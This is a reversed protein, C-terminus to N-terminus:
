NKVAEVQYIMVMKEKGKVKIPELPQIIFDDKVRNYTEESILIQEPKANSELRAALNVTDGIATYELREKSGINGVVAPGSNIGIGFRVSRGYKSELRDNLEKAKSKMELAALVARKAHDEQPVPAGFISMVGDGIFKDLTGGYKFISQTALDLYENLVVIVEEPEMKESLPTFGRIDIFVLTVDKREGGLKIEGETSLIEEVVSQSVYRGFLGTVRNRERREQLYHSVVSFVYSFVIALLVYFYPIIIHLKEIVENFLYTYIVIFGVSVLISWKINVREMTLYSLITVISIVVIGAATPVESYIRGDILSQLVNAHIEVGFMTTHSNPVDFMDQLGVTYPGILVTADKFYSLEIEGNIVDGVSIIEFTPQTPTSYYTFYAESFGGTKIPEDGLFWENDSTWRIQRDEPLILNALRVAMAPIIEGDENPIGLAVERIKQDSSILPNIHGLQELSIDYIPYHIAEYALHNPDEQYSALTFYTALFINDHADIVEQWRADQEPDDSEETYLVDVFVGKAGHEVLDNALNALVGRPWPWSGVQELSYDDIALIKISPDTNRLEHVFSDTFNNSVEKFLEFSYFFSIFVVVILISVLKRLFAGGGWKRFHVGALAPTLSFESLVLALLIKLM